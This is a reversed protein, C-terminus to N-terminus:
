TRALSKPDLTDRLKDGMLNVSLVVLFIATSPALAFWPAMTLNPLGDRVMQGLTPTPPAVGLGIFSLNAEIRIATALWLSAFVLLEGLVNPRIHRGIVWRDRAGNMVSQLVYERDVVTLTSGYALRVFHPAIVFALAFILRNLGPGLVALVLLGTILDPFSMMVDTVRMIVAGARGGRYAAVMGLFGGVVAGAVVSAGAVLLSFGLGAAVRALIDRGFQDTGLWNQASPAALRGQMNQAIPDHPILSPGVLTFALLGLALIPGPGQFRAPIRNRAWTRALRFHPVETM